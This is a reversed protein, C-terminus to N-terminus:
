PLHLQQLLLALRVGSLTVRDEAIASMKGSYDDDPTFPQIPTKLREAKLVAAKIEDPYVFDQMLQRSEDMWTLTDVSIDVLNMQRASVVMRRLTDDFPQNRLAGDWTSHLSGGRVPIGNGGRDGSSFLASSVLAGSHLPQHIDGVLHLVWCLAVARAAVDAGTDRLLSLNYDLALVINGVQHEDSPNTLMEGVIDALPEVGVYVNGQISGGRVWAGDIWHWAPRNYRSLEDGDLRRVLDPWIAAQGLLWRTREADSALMINAPIQDLFDETFRPHNELIAILQDQSTTTLTEWAVYASLRHSTADWAQALPALCFQLMLYLGLASFKLLRM